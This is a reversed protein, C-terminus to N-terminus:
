RSVKEERNNHKKLLFHYHISIVALKDKRQIQCGTLIPASIFKPHSTKMEVQLAVVGENTLRVDLGTQLVLKEDQLSWNGSKIDEDPIFNLECADQILAFVPLQLIDQDLPIYEINGSENIVPAAFWESTLTSVSM